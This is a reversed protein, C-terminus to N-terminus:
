QIVEKEALVGIDVLADVLGLIARVIVEKTGASRHAFNLRYVTGPEIAVAPKM